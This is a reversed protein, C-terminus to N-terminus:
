YVYKSFLGWYAYDYTKPQQILHKSRKIWDNLKVSKATMEVKELLVSLRATEKIEGSKVIDGTFVYLSSLFFSTHYENCNDDDIFSCIMPINEFSNVALEWDQDPIKEDSYAWARIEEPTPNWAHQADRFIIEM